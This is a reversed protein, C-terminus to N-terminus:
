PDIFSFAVSFLSMQLNQKPWSVACYHKWVPRMITKNPRTQQTQGVVNSNIAQFAYVGHHSVCATM